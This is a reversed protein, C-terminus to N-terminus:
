ICNTAKFKSKKSNFFILVLLYTSVCVLAIHDGRIKANDDWIFNPFPINPVVVDPFPSRVINKEDGSFVVSTVALGRKVIVNNDNSGNFLLLRQRNTYKVNKVITVISNFLFRDCMRSAM